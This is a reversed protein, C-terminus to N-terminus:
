MQQRQIYTYISNPLTVKFVFELRVQISETDAQDLPEIDALEVQQNKREGELQVVLKETEKRERDESREGVSTSTSTFAKVPKISTTTTRLTRTVTYYKAVETYTHPSYM